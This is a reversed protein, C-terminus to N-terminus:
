FFIFIIIGVIKFYYFCFVIFIFVVLSQAEVKPWACCKYVRETM